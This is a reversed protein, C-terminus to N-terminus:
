FLLDGVLRPEAILLGLLVLVAQFEGPTQENGLFRSATTMNGSARLTRYLNFVRKAERPTQVLPALARLHAIEQTSLPRPALLQARGIHHEACAASCRS